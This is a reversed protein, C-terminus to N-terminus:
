DCYSNDLISRMLSVESLITPVLKSPIIPKNDFHHAWHAKWVGWLCSGVVILFLRIDHVSPPLRRLLIYYTS